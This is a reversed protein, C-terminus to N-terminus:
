AEYVLLIPKTTWRYIDNWGWSSNKLPRGVGKPSPVEACVDAEFGFERRLYDRTTPGITAVYTQRRGRRIGCGGGREGTKVRGTEEDLLGLERLAAECGTPSFIVVWRTEASSSASLASAFATPFSSRTTTGYVELEDVRIRENPPLSDGMLTKPIIDRRNDGVLFLLHPRPHPATPLYHTLMYAALAEGNGTESGHIQLPPTSPISRLARTTAPGVTYIPPKPSSPLPRPHHDTSSPPATPPSPTLSHTTTPSAEAVLSTFAEVARQSTFIMGGYTGEDGTDNIRRSRLLQRLTDLGPELLKHELVPVFTPTLDHGAIKTASFFEEYGDHPTSKTKLLFIPISAADAATTTM